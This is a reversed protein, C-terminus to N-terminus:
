KLKVPYWAYIGSGQGLSYVLTDVWVYNRKSRRVERACNECFYRGRFKVTARKSCCLCKNYKM